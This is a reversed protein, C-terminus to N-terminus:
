GPPWTMKRKGLLHFHLHKVTQFGDEGCNNVLRYGNELGLEQAIDKVKTMIYGLLDRDEDTVADLSEIHKKPIILVHVPAQPELDHFCLIRDDEYVASSPIEKQAIKCFICDGM